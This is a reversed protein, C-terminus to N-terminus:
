RFGSKCGQIVTKVNHIFESDVKGENCNPRPAKKLRVEVWDVEQTDTKEENYLGHSDDVQSFRQFKELKLTDNKSNLKCADFKHSQSGCGFCISTLNEYDLLRKHCGGDLVYKITRKLPKLVDIEVYIRAFLGKTVDEFNHDIQILNGIPSIIHRFVKDNWMELPLSNLGMLSCYEISKDELLGINVRFYKIEILLM